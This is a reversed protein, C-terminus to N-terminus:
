VFSLIVNYINVIHKRLEIVLRSSMNRDIECLSEYLKTYHISYSTIVNIPEGTKADTILGKLSLAGSGTVTIKRASKDYYSRIAYM